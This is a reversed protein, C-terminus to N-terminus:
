EGIETCFVKIKERPCADRENRLTYTQRAWSTRSIALDLTAHSLTSISILQHSVQLKLKEREFRSRAEEYTKKFDSLAAWRGLQGKKLLGDLDDCIEIFSSFLYTLIMYLVFLPSVCEVVAILRGNENDEGYM